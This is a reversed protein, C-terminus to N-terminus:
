ELRKRETFQRCLRRANFGITKHIEYETHTFQLANGQTISSHIKEAVIACAILERFGVTKL